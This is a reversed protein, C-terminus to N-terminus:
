GANLPNGCKNCFRAGRNMQTGCNPCITLTPQQDPSLGFQPTSPPADYQPPPPPTSGSSAWSPGSYNTPYQQQNASFTRAGEVGFVDRYAIATITFYLPYSVLLGIYCAFQGLSALLSVVFAFLAFMFWNAKTANYSASLAEGVSLNRDIVLPMTFFLVGAVALGPLICFLMGLMVLLGFAIAAGIVRLFIDGGSFLDGVSIVKGRLQKLATKHLGAWFFAGAFMSLIVLVFFLPFFLAPPEPPTGPEANIQMAIMMLYLPVAPIAFVLFVILMQLVWVKWAEAFMQWGEGIWEGWRVTASTEQQM